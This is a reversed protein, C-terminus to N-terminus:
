GIGGFATRAVHASEVHALWSRVLRMTEADVKWSPEGGYLDLGGSGSGREDLGLLTETYYTAVRQGDPTFAAGAGAHRRDYFTVITRKEDTPLCPPLHVVRFPVGNDATVDLVSVEAASM